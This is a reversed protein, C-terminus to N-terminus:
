LKLFHRRCTPPLRQSLFNLLSAAATTFFLPWIIGRQPPWFPWSIIRSVQLNSFFIRNCFSFLNTQFCLHCSYCTSIEVQLSFFSFGSSISSISSSFMEVQAGPLIFQGYFYILFCNSRINVYFDTFHLKIATQQMMLIFRKFPKFRVLLQLSAVRFNCVRHCMMNIQSFFHSKGFWHCLSNDPVICGQRCLFSFVVVSLSFAMEWGWKGSASSHLTELGMFYPLKQEIKCSRNLKYFLLIILTVHPIFIFSVFSRKFHNCSGFDLSSERSVM